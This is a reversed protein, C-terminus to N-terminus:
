FGIAKIIGQSMSKGQLLEKEDLRSLTVLPMITPRPADPLYRHFQFARYLELEYPMMEEVKVPSVGLDELNPLGQPEDTVHTRELKDLTLARLWKQGMPLSQVILSKLVPAFHFRLDVRRYEWDENYKDMVDHMWDMLDALLIRDPGYAEYIKGVTTPDNVASMIGSVLDYAHLPQKVTANGSKWLPLKNRYSYRGSQNYYSLFYDGDGYTDVSRIITADPFETLVAQEGHWKSKLWASGKPLFVKDPNEKANVHSIHIFRKVGSERAIKALRRPGEVHVDDFNYNLTEHERGILNFVVNSHTLSRRISEEDRLEYPTFLVQGLDGCVKLRLSSYHDGRYPIIMQAGTKGLRNCVGRGIAGTAGFVTAIVGSFSSRYGTGRKLNALNLSRGSSVAEAALGLKPQRGSDSKPRHDSSVSRTSAVLITQSGNKAPVQLRTFVQTCSM